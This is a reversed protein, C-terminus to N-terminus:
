ARRRILGFIFLLLIAGLTAVVLSGLFGGVGFGLANAIWGGIIAGIIGVVLNTLLGHRRGTVQEAIWGAIIGIVIWGIITMLDM